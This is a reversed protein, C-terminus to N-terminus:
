PLWSSSSPYLNMYAGLACFVMVVVFGLLYRQALKKYGGVLSFLAVIALILDFLLGLMPENGEMVFAPFALAIPLLFSVLRLISGPKPLLLDGARM